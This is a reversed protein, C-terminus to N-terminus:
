LRTFPWRSFLAAWLAGQHVGSESNLTVVKGGSYYKLLGHVGYHAQVLNWLLDWGESQAMDGELQGDM